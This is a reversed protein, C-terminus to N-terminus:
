LRMWPIENTEPPVYVVNWRDETSILERVGDVPAIQAGHGFAPSLMLGAAYISSADAGARILQVVIRTFDSSPINPFNPGIPSALHAAITLPTSGSSSVRPDPDPDAGLALLLAVTNKHGKSAAYYLVSDGDDDVADVDAGLSHLVQVAGDGGVGAALMMPTIGLAGQANPDAGYEVLMRIAADWELEAVAHIVTFGQEGSASTSPASADAGQDLLLKFVRENKTGMAYRLVGDGDDDVAGIDAGHDLLSRLQVEDGGASWHLLSRANVVDDPEPIRSRVAVSPLTDGLIPPTGIRPDELHGSNHMLEVPVDLAPTARPPLGRESFDKSMYDIDPHKLVVVTGDRRLALFSNHSGLMTSGALAVVDTLDAPIPFGGSWGGDSEVTGAATLALRHKWGYAIETVNRFSEPVGWFATDNGWDVVSGDRLIASSNEYGAAIAVVGSLGFPVHRQDSDPHGWAFVIGDSRLALSHWAGAAIARVDRLGYPAQAQGDENAGWGVVTGDRRLALSHRGGAAIALVDRLGDPVDAQGAGSHGWGVVSGDRRLALSHVSGAAIAVVDDLGAPARYTNGWACVSGDRRLALGHEDGLAIAVIGTPPLGSSHSM